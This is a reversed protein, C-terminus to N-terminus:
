QGTDDRSDEEPQAADDTFGHDHKETGSVPNGNGIEGLPQARDKLRDMGHSSDDRLFHAFDHAPAGMVASKKHDAQNKEGDSESDIIQRLFKDGTVPHADPSIIEERALARRTRKKWPAM